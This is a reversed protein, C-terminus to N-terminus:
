VYLQEKDTGYAIKEEEVTSDGTACLSDAQSDVTSTKDDSGSVTLLDAAHCAPQARRSM